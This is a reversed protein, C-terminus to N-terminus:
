FDFFQNKEYKRKLILFLPRKMKKLVTQFLAFIRRFLYGKQEKQLGISFLYKM